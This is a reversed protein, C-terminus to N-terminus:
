NRSKTVLGAVEIENDSANSRSCLLYPHTQLAKKNM